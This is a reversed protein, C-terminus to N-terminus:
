CCFLVQFNDLHCVECVAGEDRAGRLVEDALLFTSSKEKHPSSSILLVKM